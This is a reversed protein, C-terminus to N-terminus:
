VVHDPRLECLVATEHTELQVTTHGIGFRDRVECTIQQLLAGDATIDARVLHVTMATETTSMAWIHLDHIETVGPLSRLYGSVALHDVGRPVGDLALSVSDRLLSWTGAVIVGSIVISVVPDVWLWGTLLIMGGAVAVGLSVMADAAMHMFAGQINLDSKRGAMFMWATVGNVAVGLLSVVVITLGASPEPEFLRRVAEWAIGGTVVLLVIANLLAALISSRRLGYTYQGSPQRKSLSAALWAALLGAVDGLNHGADALLAMSHAALGYFVEALIYVMNLTVGIAFARGFDTPVHHHGGVGHAHSHDHGHDHRHQDGHDHHHDHGPGHDHDHRDAM